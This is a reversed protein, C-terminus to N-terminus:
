PPEQTNSSSSCVVRCRCCCCCCCCCFRVFFFYMFSVFRSDYFVYDIFRRTESGRFKWTTWIGEGGRDSDCESLDCFNRLFPVLGVLVAIASPPEESADSGNSSSSSSTSAGAVCKGRPCTNFDGCLVIASDRCAGGESKIREVIARVQHRRVRESERTPKSKLHTAIVTIERNAASGVLRLRVICAPVKVSSYSSFTSSSLLHLKSSRWFVCVGDPSYGFKM